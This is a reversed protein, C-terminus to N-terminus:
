VTMSRKARTAALAHARPRRFSQYARLHSSLPRASALCTPLPRRTRRSPQRHHTAGSARRGGASLHRRRASAACWLQATLARQLAGMAWVPRANVAAVGSLTLLLARIAHLEVSAPLGDVLLQPSQVPQLHRGRHHDRDALQGAPNALSLRGVLGPWRCDGQGGLGAGSRHLLWQRYLHCAM